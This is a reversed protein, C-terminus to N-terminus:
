APANPLLRDYRHRITAYCECTARELLARDLVSVRGRRYAIVGARQLATAAQTVTTRHVGLMEALFDQTLPLIQDPATRDELQLLLRCLRAEVPHLATCASLQLVQALLADGHCLCLRRLGPSAEFQARLATAPLRLAAGPVTVIGRSVTRHGGLAAMAGVMGELGVSAAEASQGGEMVVVLSLVCSEPFWVHRCEEDPEFLVEGQVASVRELRPALAAQEPASLAALLHNRRARGDSGVEV